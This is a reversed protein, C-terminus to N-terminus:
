LGKNFVLERVPRPPGPGLRLMSHFREELDEVPLRAEQAVIALCAPTFLASSACALCVYTAMPSARPFATVAAAHLYPLFLMPALYSIRTFVTAAVAYRGAAASRGRPEGDEDRVVVGASCEDARLLGIQVPKAAAAALFPVAIRLHRATAAARAGVASAARADTWRAAGVGVALSTGVAAAFSLGLAREDVNNSANRNSFFQAANFCQNLAQWAGVAAPSAARLMGVLLLTNVPVHAAMRFPVPIPVGTDPHLVAARLQKAAAVEESSASSGPALAAAAAALDASTAFLSPWSMPGCVHMMAHFRESYTSPQNMNDNETM